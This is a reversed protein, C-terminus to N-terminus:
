PSRAILAIDGNPMKFKFVAGRDLKRLRTLPAVTQRIEEIARLDAYITFLEFRSFTRLKVCRLRSNDPGLSADGREDDKLSPRDALGDRMMARKHHVVILPQPLGEEIILPREKASPRPGIFSGDM